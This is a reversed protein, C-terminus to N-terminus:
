HAMPPTPAGEPVVPKRVFCAALITFLSIIGGV